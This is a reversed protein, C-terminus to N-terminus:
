EYQCELRECQLEADQRCRVAEGTPFTLCFTSGKVENKYVKIHGEHCQMIKHAIALGLGTGMDKTSFFPDFIKEINEGSIGEGEDVVCAVVSGNNTTMSIEINGGEPMAQVANMIINM